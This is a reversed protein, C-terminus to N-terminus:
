KDTQFFRISIGIGIGIIPPFILVGIEHISSISKSFYAFAISASLGVFYGIGAYLMYKWKKFYGITSLLLGPSLFILIGRTWLFIDKASEV